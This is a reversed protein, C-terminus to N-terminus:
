AATSPEPNLLGAPRNMWRRPSSWTTTWRRCPNIRWGLASQLLREGPGPRGRPNRFAGSWGNREGSLKFPLRPPGAGCAPNYDEAGCQNCPQGPLEGARATLAGHSSSEIVMVSTGALTAAAASAERRHCGPTGVAQALGQAREHAAVSIRENAERGLHRHIANVVASPGAVSRSVLAPVLSRFGSTPACAHPGPEAAARAETGRRSPASSSQDANSSATNWAVSGRMTRSARRRFRATRRGEVPRHGVRQHGGDQFLLYGDDLRPPAVAVQHVAEARWRGAGPVTAGAPSSTLGVGSCHSRM